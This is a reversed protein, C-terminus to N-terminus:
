LYIGGDLHCSEGGAKSSSRSKRGWPIFRRKRNQKALSRLVRRRARRQQIAECWHYWEFRLAYDVDSLWGQLYKSRRRVFRALRKRCDDILGRLGEPPIPTASDSFMAFYGFYSVVEPQDGWLWGWDPQSTRKATSATAILNMHWNPRRLAAHLLLLTTSSILWAFMSSFARWGVVSVICLQVIFALFVNRKLFLGAVPAQM